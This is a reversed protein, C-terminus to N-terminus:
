VAFKLAGFAVDLVGSDDVGCCIMRQNIGFDTRYEPKAGDARYANKRNSLARSQKQINCTVGAIQDAIYSPTSEMQKLATKGLADQVGNLLLYSVEAVSNRIQVFLPFSHTCTLYHMCEHPM